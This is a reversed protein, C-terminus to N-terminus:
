VKGSILEIKRQKSGQIGQLRSYWSIQKCIEPQKNHERPHQTHQNGRILWTIHWM